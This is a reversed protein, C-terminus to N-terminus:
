RDISTDYNGALHLLHCTESLMHTSIRNKAWPRPVGGISMLQISLGDDGNAFDWRPADVPKGGGELNVNKYSTTQPASTARIKRRAWDYIGVDNYTRRDAFVM